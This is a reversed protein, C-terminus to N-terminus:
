PTENGKTVRTNGLYCLWHHDTTHTFTFRQSSVRPYHAVCTDLIFLYFFYHSDLKTMKNCCAVLRLRTTLEM